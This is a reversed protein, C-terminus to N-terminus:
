VGFGMGMRGVRGVRRGKKRRGAAWSRKIKKKRLPGRFRRRGMEGATRGEGREVRYLPMVVGQVERV